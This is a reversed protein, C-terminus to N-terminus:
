HIAKEFLAGNQREYLLRTLLRAFTTSNNIDHTLVKPLTYSKYYNYVYLKGINLISLVRNSYENKSPIILKRHGRANSVFCHVARHERSICGRQLALNRLPLIKSQLVMKFFIEVITQLMGM